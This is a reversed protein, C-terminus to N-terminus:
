NCIRAFSKTLIDYKSSLKFLLRAKTLYRYLKAQPCESFYSSGHGGIVLWSWRHGDQGGIVFWSWRHGDHGGIVFWSWRHGIM